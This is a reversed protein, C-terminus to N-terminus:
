SSASARRSPLAAARYRCKKSVVRVVALTAGAIAAQLGEVKSGEAVREVMTEEDKEVAQVAVVIVEEHSVMVMVVEQAVVVMVVEQAQVVRVVAIAEVVTAAAQQEVETTALARLEAARGKAPKAEAAKTAVCVTGVMMMARAASMMVVMVRLATARLAATAVKLVM